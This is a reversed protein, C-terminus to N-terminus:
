LFFFRFYASCFTLVCSILYRLCANNFSGNGTNLLWMYFNDSFLWNTWWHVPLSVLLQTFAIVLLCSLEAPPFCTILEVLWVEHWYSPYLQFQDKSSSFISKYIETLVTSTKPAIWFRTNTQPCTNLFHPGPNRSSVNLLSTDIEENYVPFM